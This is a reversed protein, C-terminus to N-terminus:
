ALNTENTQEIAMLISFTNVRPLLKLQQVAGPLLRLITSGDNHNLLTGQFTCINKLATAVLDM